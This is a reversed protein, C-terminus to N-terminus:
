CPDSRSATPCVKLIHLEFVLAKGVLPSKYVDGTAYADKPEIRGAVAEGVRAQKALNTFGPIVGSGVTFNFPAYVGIGRYTFVTGMKFLSANSAIPEVSTDFVRGDPLMGVYNALVRQGTEIAGGLEGVEAALAVTASRSADRASKATATLAYTGNATGPPALASVLFVSGKGAPIDQTARGLEVSVSWGEPGSMTVTVNDRYTGLNRVVIAWNIGEGAAAPRAPMPAYAAVEAHVPVAEPYAAVGIRTIPVPTVPKSKEDPNGASATTPTSGLLRLADLGEVVYGFVAHRDDLHPTADLTIFFESSGTGPGAHAISLTGERDHRLQPHFEDPVKPITSALRELGAQVVFGKATNADPGVIRYFSANKYKGQRTLNLIHSVTVPAQQACLEVTMTGFRTEIPWLVGGPTRGEVKPCGHPIVIPPKEEGPLFCGALAATIPVIALFGALLRMARARRRQTM